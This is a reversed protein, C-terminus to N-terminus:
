KTFKKILKDGKENTVEVIYIGPTFRSTNIRIINNTIQSTSHTAVVAGGAATIKVNYSGSGANSLFINLQDKVPNPYISLMLQSKGTNVKALPSYKSEGSRNIAKVRYFSTGGFPQTDTFSYVATAVSNGRSAVSGAQEFSRGDSSREVHYTAINNESPMKWSVEVGNAKSQANITIFEVPLTTGSNLIRAIRNRGTGNYSTFGGGVIIKGDNQIATTQVRLNAGTGPNFSEDVSGDANLRAIRNRATGSYATFDGGIIIKGDSQISTTLVLSNPGIGPNFTEDLTGNANIRAIRNRTTGNYSTFIGGIIIKGDSQISTTLISSSAGTGPNFNQDLTGDTNLRAIKNVYIGNYMNFGGGIIIKGDSQVAIPGLANYTGTGSNFSEDTTGDANLRAINNRERENYHDFVGGIM